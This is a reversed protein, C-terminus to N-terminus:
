QRVAVVAYTGTCSYGDTMEVTTTYVGELRSGDQAVQRTVVVARSTMGGYGGWQTPDSYQRGCTVARDLKCDGESWRESEVVCESGGTKGDAADDFSVLQEDIDPCSGSRKTLTMMYTGARDDKRCSTVAQAQSSSGGTEASCGLLFLAVVARGM